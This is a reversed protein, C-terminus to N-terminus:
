MRIGIQTTREAATSLDQVSRLQRGMVPLVEFPTLLPSHLLGESSAFDARAARLPGLASQSVIDSASLRGKAAQVETMGHSADLLGFVALLGSAVIWAAVLLLLGLLLARRHDRVRRSLLQRRSTTRQGPFVVPRSAARVDELSSGAGTPPDIL